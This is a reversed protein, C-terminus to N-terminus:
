FLIWCILGLFFFSESEVYRLAALLLVMRLTIRIVFNIKFRTQRFSKHLLLLINRIQRNTECNSYLQVFFLYPLFCTCPSLWPRAHILYSTNIQPDCFVWPLDWIALLRALTEFITEIVWELTVHRTLQLISNSGRSINSAPFLMSPIDVGESMWPLYRAASM